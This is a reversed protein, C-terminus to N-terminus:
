AEDRRRKWAMLIAGVGALPILGLLFLYPSTTMPVGTDVVVERNNEFTVTNGDESVTFTVTKTTGPTENDTGATTTYGNETTETITVKAGVPLTGLKTDSQGHTRTIDANTVGSISIERSGDKVTVTFHFVESRDSM